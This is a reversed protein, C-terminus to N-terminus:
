SRAVDQEATRSLWQRLVGVLWILGAVAVALMLWRLVSALFAPTLAPWEFRYRLLQSGRETTWHWGTHAVLVSLIITGIREAVGYRFLLGLSPILVALVLIQGLEVGVNFALLSALLHSGAFQLTQRLAFSFGFGHVLGFLFTIIWRREINAGVINEIAMYVISTAILTEILPPFWLADPGLEYAAAVLTISHAVTFATVVVLLQRFRRFPIVLCFLFLLHDIGDLIHFFGERTFLWAAQFWSPDIRILGPDNHLELARISGDPPLFRLVTTTEVGLHQFRPRIAFKARDSVIDYEFLADFLGQATVFETDAPLPPAALHALALEYSEFSRDSPLAAKVSVLRAAALRRDDEYLDIFGAISNLAAEELAGDARALDLLGIGREPWTVDNISAIPVRVVLRLREGEPKLFAQVTVSNPVEHAAAAAPLLLGVLALRASIRRM